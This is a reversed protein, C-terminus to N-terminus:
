ISIPKIDDLDLAGDRYPMIMQVYEYDNPINARTVFHIFCNQYDTATLERINSYLYPSDSLHTIKSNKEEVIEMFPLVNKRLIAIFPTTAPASIEIMQAGNFYKNGKEEKFLEHKNILFFRDIYFDNCLLIHESNVRLKELAKGVDNYQVEYRIRPQKDSLASAYCRAILLKASTVINDAFDTYEVKDYGKLIYNKPIDVGLQCPYDVAISSTPDLPTNVTLDANEWKKKLTSIIGKRKEEDIEPKEAIRQSENTLSDIMQQIFDSAEEESFCNSPNLLKNNKNHFLLKVAKQIRLLIVLKYQITEKLSPVPLPTLPNAYEVNYDMGKLRILQLALSQEIISLLRWEDDVNGNIGYMPYKNQQSILLSLDGRHYFEEWDKYLSLFTNDCLPYEYPSTRSYYVLHDVYDGKGYHIIMGIMALHMRKFESKEEEFKQRDAPSLNWYHRQHEIFSIYQTAFEWYAYVWEKNGNRVAESVMRWILLRDAELLPKKSRFITDILGMDAKYIGAKINEDCFISTFISFVEKMEKSLRSEYALVDYQGTRSMQPKNNELQRSLEGCISSACRIYLDPYNERAAYRAIEAELIVNNGIKIRNSFREHLSYPMKYELMTHYLQISAILLFLVIFTHIALWIIIFCSAGSLCLLVFPSIIAAVISLALSVKFNRYCDENIFSNVINNSGYKKDLDGITSNVLPYGMGMIMSFITILGSYVYDTFDFVM